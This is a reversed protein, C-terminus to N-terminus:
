QVVVRQISTGKNTQIHVLYMGKPKAQMNIQVAQSDVSSLSVNQAEGLLNYIKVQEIRVSAAVLQM